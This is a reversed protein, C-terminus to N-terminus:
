LGEILTKRHLPTYCTFKFRGSLTVYKHEKLTEIIRRALNNRPKM